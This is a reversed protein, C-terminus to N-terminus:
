LTEVNDAEINNTNKIYQGITQLDLPATVKNTTIVIGLQESQTFDAMIESKINRLARNINTIHASLDKIFQTKNNNNMLVIFQKRLLGKTTMNLRPKTKGKGSIIKQINEIKKTQLNPFMEKIKLVERTINLSTLAQAYLKKQEKKDNNKKFFKSIENVKKPLKVPIQSPLKSISTSKDM